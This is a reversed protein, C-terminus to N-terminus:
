EMSTGDWSILPFCSGRRALSRGGSSKRQWHTAFSTGARLFWQIPAQCPERTKIGLKIRALERIWRQYKGTGITEEPDKQVSSNTHSKAHTYRVFCTGPRNNRDLWPESTPQDARHGGHDSAPLEPSGKLSHSTRVRVECVFSPVFPPTAGSSGKLPNEPAVEGGEGGDSHFSLASIRPPASAELCGPCGHFLLSKFTWQKSFSHSMWPEGHHGNTRGRSRVTYLAHLTPSPSAVGWWSM